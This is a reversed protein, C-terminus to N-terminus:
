RDRGFAVREGLGQAVAEDFVYRASIVDEIAVGQSEFLTISDMLVRQPGAAVVQSLEVAESWEFVGEEVAAILDGSENKAQELSDVAILDAREVTAGDVERNHARNSGAANVHCGPELWAGDVVPQSSTTITVVIDSERVAAEASAAPEVPLALQRAVRAAFAERHEPTRSYVKVLDLSRVAAIAEIQTEAQRGAGIVGLTRADERALYRTAVASAAGTRVRGLWDAELVALLANAETDFLLVVFTAGARGAAYAKLGVANRAPVAASM